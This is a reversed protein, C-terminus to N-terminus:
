KRRALVSYYDLYDRWINEITFNYLHVKILWSNFIYHPLGVESGKTPLYVRDDIQNATKVLCYRVKGKAIRGPLTIFLMGEPRIVRALEGFGDKIDETLGHALTQVCIIGDFARDPYPLREFKGQEVPININKASSRENLKMVATASADIGRVDFGNEHMFFLNGELGAGIDLVRRIENARFKEIVGALDPHPLSMDYHDFVDEERYISDWDRSIASVSQETKLM